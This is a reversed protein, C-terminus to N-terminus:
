SSDQIKFFFCIFYFVERLHNMTNTLVTSFEEVNTSTFSGANLTAAKYLDIKFDLLLTKSEQEM